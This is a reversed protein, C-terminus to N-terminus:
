VSSCLSLTAPIELEFPFVLFRSKHRWMQSPFGRTNSSPSLSLYWTGFLAWVHAVNVALTALIFNGELSHNTDMNM